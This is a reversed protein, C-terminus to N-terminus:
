PAKKMVFNILTVGCRVVEQRREVRYGRREFFPRATLSAHTTFQAAPCARELAELLASAIGRRTHAPHVYLRDLYGDETMDAFGLLVGDEEAVLTHHARLSADWAGEDIRGTAWADLQEQTYDDRCLTHVSEFFLAAIAALDETQYPRLTM